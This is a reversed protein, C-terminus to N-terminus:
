ELGRKFLGHMLSFSDKNLRLFLDPEILELEVLIPTSKEIMFDIRAYGIERNCSEIVDHCFSLERESLPYLSYTGGYHDQVRFENRSAKKLVGHSFSGNIFIASIEGDFIAPKFEQIMLSGNRPITNFAREVQDLSSVKVIGRGGAGISPKMIIPFKLKKVELIVEDLHWSRIYTTSITNIGSLSLDNLYLKDSNWIITSLPNILATNESITKCKKLFLSKKESYDWVPGIIVSHYLSFDVPDEWKIIDLQSSSSNMFNNLEILDPNSLEKESSLYAFKM